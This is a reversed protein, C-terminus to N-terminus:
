FIVTVKLGPNNDELHITANHYDTIAKVLSLGLGTGPTKRSADARYFRNFVKDKEESTIGPGNDSITIIPKAAQRSLSISVEGQEPAFKIANDLLNAFLQFILDRDGSIDPVEHYGTELTINKEEALTDYLEVADELITKLNLEEPAQHRKGKEINSIRLLSNFIGLLRDADSLLRDIGEDTLPTQKAEELDNRLRTLPTRLDHAISDSVDRIGAMLHEIRNLLANLTQALNSLDDWNSDISIRRSLDGTEMIEEATTAITNIRGVVFTSIFFSVLVVILMFFIIIGTFWKLKEYSQSIADINRAILLRSGDQFTHIKAAVTHNDAISFSIVGEKITKVESPLKTINGALIKGNSNYYLYIPNTRGESQDAIYTTIQETNKNKILSLIQDMENDVIAESERGFNQKGFDYLFYGLMIAALGLLITFLAAM